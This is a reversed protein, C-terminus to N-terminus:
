RVDPVEGSPLLRQARECQDKREVVVLRVRQVHHVLDIGRQVELVDGYHGVVDLLAFVLALSSLTKEGGSLNRINKWTKNPPRVQFEIGEAFPDLSDTLILEGFLVHFFM